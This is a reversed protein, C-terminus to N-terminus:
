PIERGCTLAPTLCAPISERYCDAADTDSCADAESPEVDDECDPHTSPALPRPDSSIPQPAGRSALLVLAFVCAFALAFAFRATPDRDRRLPLATIWVPEFTPQSPERWLLAELERRGGADRLARDLKALRSRLTNVNVHRERAIDVITEGVIRARVFLERSVPDLSALFRDLALYVEIEAGSHPVSAHVYDGLAGLRRRRRRQARHYNLCVKNLVAHMWTRPEARGDLASLRRYVVLYTDQVVDEIDAYDVGRKRAATCLYTWNARYLEDFSPM